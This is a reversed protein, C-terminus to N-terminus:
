WGSLDKQGNLLVNQVPNSLHPSPLPHHIDLMQREMLPKATTAIFHISYAALMCMCGGKLKEWEDGGKRDLGRHAVAAATYRAISHIM